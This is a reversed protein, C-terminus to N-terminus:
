FVIIINVNLNSSFDSFHLFAKRLILQNRDRRKSMLTFLLYSGKRFDITKAFISYDRRPHCLVVSKHFTLVMHDMIIWVQDKVCHNINKSCAFLYLFLRIRFTKFCKVKDVVFTKKSKNLYIHLVWCLLEKIWVIFTISFLNKNENNNM